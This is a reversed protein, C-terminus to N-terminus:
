FHKEFINVCQRPDFNTSEILCKFIELSTIRFKRIVICIM